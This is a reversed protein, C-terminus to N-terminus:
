IAVDSTLREPRIVLPIRLPQLISRYKTSENGVNAGVLFLTPGAQGGGCRHRVNGSRSVCIPTHGRRRITLTACFFLGNVMNDKVTWDIAHRHLAHGSPEPHRSWNIPRGRSKSRDLLQNLLQRLPHLLTLMQFIHRYPPRLRSVYTELELGADKPSVGSLM